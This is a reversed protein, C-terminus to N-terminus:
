KLKLLIHKKIRDLHVTIDNVIENRGEASWEVQLKGLLIKFDDTEEIEEKRESIWWDKDDWYTGHPDDPDLGNKEAYEEWDASAAEWLMEEVYNSYSENFNMVLSRYDKLFGEIAKKLEKNESIVKIGLDFDYEFLFDSYDESNIVYNRFKKIFHIIEYENSIKKDSLEDIKALLDLLEEYAVKDSQDDRKTNVVDEFDDMDYFTKNRIKYYAWVIKKSMELAEKSKNRDPHWKRILKIFARKVERKSAGPEIGLVEYPNLKRRM